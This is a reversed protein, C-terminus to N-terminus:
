PDLSLSPKLSLAEDQGSDRWFVFQQLTDSPRPAQTSSLYEQAAVIDLQIQTQLMDVSSFTQEPRLRKAFHVRLTQDYLDRSFDFIHTEVSINQNHDFTPRIGINTVGPLIEGQQTEIWSAYVGRAPLLEQELQLNATPFGLTRGRQFGPVVVGDLYFYRHLLLRAGEMQGELVFERIKTSSAVIGEFSLPPVVHVQIHPQSLSALADVGAKGGRGFTFDFGVFIEQAGLRRHLVDSVFQEPSYAAFTHDFPEEVLMDVGISALIARKQQYTNILPPALHPALLKVPHPVFTYVVSPLGRESARMKVRHIIERHGCHVGDFNGITVVTSM